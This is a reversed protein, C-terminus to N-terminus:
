ATHRQSCVHSYVCEVSMVTSCVSSDVRLCKKILLLSFGECCNKPCSLLSLEKAAAAALLVVLVLVVVLLSPLLSSSSGSGNLTSSPCVASM